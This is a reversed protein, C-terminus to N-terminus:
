FVDPCDEPLLCQAIQSFEWNSGHRDLIWVVDFRDDPWYGPCPLHSGGIERALRAIHAHHWAILVPSPAVSVAAALAAEQDEAFDHNVPLGLTAAM